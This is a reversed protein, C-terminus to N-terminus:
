QGYILTNPFFAYWGFWYALHGSIRPASEGEPGVLAEETVQWSKGNTDLVSDADPGPRFTQQGREYARIEGGATYTAM